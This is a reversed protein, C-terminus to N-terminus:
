GLVDGRSFPPPVFPAGVREVPADLDDFAEASIRSAIEAGFGGELVAEHAVVCHGTRTVSAIVTPVDLPRLVRLDIVEAEVGESALVEAAEIATSVM